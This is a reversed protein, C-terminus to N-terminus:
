ICLDTVGDTCHVTSVKCGRFAYGYVRNFSWDEMTGAYNVRKLGICDEFAYPEIIEVSAPLNLELLNYCGNFAGQSIKYLKPSFGVYSLRECDQFAWDYVTEVGPLAIKELDYFGCFANNEVSLINNPLVLSNPIRNSGVGGGYAFYEPITDKFYQTPDVGHIYLTHTLVPKLDKPVYAYLEDFNRNKILDRHASLIDSLKEM